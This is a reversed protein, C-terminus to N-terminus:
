LGGEDGVSLAVGHIERPLVVGSHEHTGSSSLVIAAGTLWNVARRLRMELGGLGHLEEVVTDLVDIPEIAVDGVPNLHTCARSLACALSRSARIASPYCSRRRM